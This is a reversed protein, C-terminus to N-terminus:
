REVIASVLVQLLCATDSAGHRTHRITKGVKDAQRRSSDGRLLFSFESLHSDVACNVGLAPILGVVPARDHEVVLNEKAVSAATHAKCRTPGMSSLRTHAVLGTCLLVAGCCDYAFLPKARARQRDTRKAPLWCVRCAQACVCVCICVRVELDVEQEGRCTFKEMDPTLKIRYEM